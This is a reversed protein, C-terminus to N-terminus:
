VTLDVTANDNESKRRTRVMRVGRCTNTRARVAVNGLDIMQPIMLLLMVATIANRKFPSLDFSIHFTRCFWWASLENVKSCGTKEYINRTHNEVTRESIFLRNAVDKKSAGWAFLEAIVSERKTLEALENM